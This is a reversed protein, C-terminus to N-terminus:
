RVYPGNARTRNQTCIAMRNQARNSYLPSQAEIIRRVDIVIAQWCVDPFM